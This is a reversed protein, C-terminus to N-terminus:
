HLSCGPGKEDPNWRQLKTGLHIDGSTLHIYGTLLLVDGTILHIDGSFLHIDGSFLHIDKMILLIDGTHPSYGLILRIDTAILRFNEILQM